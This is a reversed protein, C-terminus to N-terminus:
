NMLLKRILENAILMGAHKNLHGGDPSYESILGPIGSLYRNSTGDPFTAEINAIDFLVNPDYHNRVLQNYKDRFVNDDMKLIVKALGKLGKPKITLPVTCHIIKLHPYVKQLSNIATQYYEFLENIDTHSNIDVYCLKMSAINVSDALGSHLIKVFDDIKSKPDLNKGIGSHAFLPHQFDSVDRTELINVLISNSENKLDTIGDIINYGVSQHGFFIRKKSLKIWDNETLKNMYASNTEAIKEEKFCSSLFVSLIFVVQIKNYHHLIRNKQQHM